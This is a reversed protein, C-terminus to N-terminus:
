QVTLARAAQAALAGQRVTVQVDYHGAPPKLEAFIPIAGSADPQPLDSNIRTAEKGDKYLQVLLKGPEAAAAAPPYVVFFLDVPKGTAVQEGLTLTVRRDQFEFPDLPNREGRIPDVRKVVELSSIELQAAPRVFVAIRKASVSSGAGDLVATDLTYHGPALEVPEAYDIREDQATAEGAAPITRFLQRSVKHVIQGGSTRLLGVLSVDLRATGTKSNPAPKLGSLPVEFAVECQVTKAGPRFQLLAADYAFAHPAPQSNMANLAALEFPQIPEGNLDPVAYYGSRTQVSIKPRDVRVEIRRFHGDYLESSPSYSLEYHERIDEMVREMPRAIENTNSVAFGGTREALEALALQTNSVGLLAADDIVSMADFASQINESGRLNGSQLQGQLGREAATRNMQNISANLPNAEGTTLGRTDVTYFTVGSRNADSIIGQFADERGAPLQLGASLYLVVKRGPLRAQSLILRRLQDIMTMGSVVSSGFRLSNELAAQAQLAANLGISADLNPLNRVVSVDNPDYAGQGLTNTTGRATSAANGAAVAGTGAVPSSNTLVSSATDDSHTLYNGRTVRNVATLLRARDRSYSEVVRLRTDLRYITVYTNPLVDSKLFSSVAERAFALDKLAMPAFVISVFNSERLANVPGAAGQGALQAAASEAQLQEHGGVNRFSAIKQRVGDEYVQVEEPRLDAVLHGRRDRVVLDLVVEKRTSLIVPNQAVSCGVGALVAALSLLRAWM